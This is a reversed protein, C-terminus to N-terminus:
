VFEVGSQTIIFDLVIFEVASTPIVRIQCNIKNEQEDVSSNNTEDCIVTFREIGARTQIQSLVASFKKKLDDRLDQSPQEFIIRNGIEAIQRKAELVMRRVNISTLASQGQKLTKQSFIVFNERPFKIISNLRVDFLRNQDDTNCRVQTQKVFELAARNFGAPAFWPFAVKDNYGLAALAPVSAPVTVRKNNIVDDIVVNPFYGAVCDNDIARSDFSDATEQVDVFSSTDGDFIRTGNYDYYPIDMVYLSLEHKKTKDAADNTVFPERIGPIVLVNHQSVNPDTTIGVATQYSVITSNNKGVGTQNSSFGPSSYSGNAGGGTETSVGKDNMRAANKDLINVGDFGGVMVTTFKTYDSFKNFDALNTSMMLLSALTIRNGNTDTITYDSPNVSGNRIYATERMHTEASSTVDSLSLNSLAVRALSFKNSNFSDVSSGTVLVDLEQIGAFKTLAPILSNKENQVNSNLVDTNREFKVGWFFRGDVIENPGPSGEFGGSTAIEGRTIKFRYPMPPVIASLLREDTAGATFSASMGLRILSGSVGGSPVGDTMLTSTNLFNFGRFGFPLVKGPVMKRSVQENMVVRIYKSRNPNDGVKILRRDESDVVDFNFFIKSDGIIKAIYNDSDPDLTLNNFQEIVQPELDSDNFARVLLSFTGYDYRPDTSARINAISIKYQSNAYAGDDLSEVYFLDYESQGFPQSIFWPTKPTKFRTDFKGFAERLRLSTDGSTTSTNGSGSVIAVIEGTTPVTAIEDDLAFDCYLLHRETEFKEPDTNLIKAIYDDNSPNLSATLVKIGSIGDTTAFTSGQSSSIVIKFKKYTVSSTGADLSTKDDLLGTFTESSSMVMVRTDYATFLMGRVLYVDTSSGTTFYSANDSFLPLGYVETGTVVHKAVIFQTSGQYRLDTASVASGSIKFGANTVTGKTRTDDMQAQTTNAGAGLVRVFTLAFRNDLWKQVAYPAPYKSDLSGFKTQFDSFSGITVPVFAPGKLSTGVVAAPVGSPQVVRVSLDIERDYYGPSRIQRSM